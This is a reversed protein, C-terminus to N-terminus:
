DKSVCCERSDMETTAIDNMLKKRDKEIVTYHKPESMHYPEISYQIETTVNAAGGTVLTGSLIM